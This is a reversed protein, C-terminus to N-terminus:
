ADAVLLGAARVGAAAFRADNDPSSGAVAAAGLLVGSADTILVGGGIPLFRGGTAGIIGAVAAQNGGLLSAIGASSMGFGLATVAKGLAIDIGFNGVGDARMACRLCGGPDTVVVSLAFVEERGGAALAALAIANAQDLTLAMNKM